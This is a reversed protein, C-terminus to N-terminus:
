WAEGLRGPDVRAVSPNLAARRQGARARDTHAKPQLKRGFTTFDARLVQAFATVTVFIFHSITIEIRNNNHKKGANTRLKGIQM